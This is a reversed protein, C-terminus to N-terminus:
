PIGGLTNQIAEVAASLSGFRSYLIMVVLLTVGIGALMLIPMAKQLRSQQLGEKSHIALGALFHPELGAKVVKSSIPKLISNKISRPIPNDREYICYPVATQFFAPMFGKPFATLGIYDSGPYIEYAGARDLIYEENFQPKKLKSNLYGDDEIFYCLLKGKAMARFIPPMVLLGFVLVAVMFILGNM